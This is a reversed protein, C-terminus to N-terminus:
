FHHNEMTNQMNVLPYGINKGQCWRSQTEGPAVSYSQGDITVKSASFIPVINTCPWAALGNVIPFPFFFRPFIPVERLWFITFESSIVHSIM